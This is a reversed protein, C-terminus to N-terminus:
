NTKQPKINLAEIIDMGNLERLCHSHFVENNIKYSVETAGITGGCVECNVGKQAFFPCSVLHPSSNCIYCM